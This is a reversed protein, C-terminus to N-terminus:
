PNPASRVEQAKFKWGVINENVKKMLMKGIASIM